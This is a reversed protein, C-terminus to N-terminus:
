QMNIPSNMCNNDVVNMEPNGTRQKECKGSLIRMICCSIYVLIMWSRQRRYLKCGLCYYTFQFVRDKETDHWYVTFHSYQELIPTKDINNAPSFHHRKKGKSIIFELSQTTSHTSFKRYHYGMSSIVWWTHNMFHFFDTEHLIFLLPCRTACQVGEKKSVLLYNRSGFSLVILRGLKM